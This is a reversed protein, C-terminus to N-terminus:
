IFCRCCARLVNEVDHNERCCGYLFMQFAWMFHGSCLLELNAVHLYGSFFLHQVQVPPPHHFALLSSCARQDRGGGGRRRRGMRGSAAETRARDLGHLSSARSSAPAAAGRSTSARGGAAPLPLLLVRRYAHPAAVRGVRSSQGGSAPLARRLTRGRTPLTVPYPQPPVWTLNKGEPHSSAQV